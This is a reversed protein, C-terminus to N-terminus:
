GADVAVLVGQELLKDLAAALNADASDDLGYANKFLATLEDRSRPYDCLSFLVGASSNLHHVRDNAPDFVILGDDAEHVQLNEVQRLQTTTM